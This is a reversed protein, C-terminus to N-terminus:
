RGVLTSDFPTVSAPGSELAADHTLRAADGSLAVLQYGRGPVTRILDRDGALAKRLAAVHVQLNNEEVVSNPWVSRMIEDKSVLAGNARILLELIEFARSGIRLSEGNSRIERNGLSVQLHGIQIM